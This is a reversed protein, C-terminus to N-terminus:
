LRVQKKLSTATKKFGKQALKMKSQFDTINAGLKINVNKAM